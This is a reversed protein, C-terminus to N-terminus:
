CKRKKEWIRKQLDTGTSYTNAIEQYGAIKKTINEVSDSPMNMVKKFSVEFKKKDPKLEEKEKRKREREEKEQALGAEVKKAEKEAEEAKKTTKKIREDHEKFEIEWEREWEQWEKSRKKQEEWEKNWRAEWAEYTREEEEEWKSNPNTLMEYARSIKKFEEEAKERNHLNKDPHHELALRYYAKKIEKESAGPNLGLIQYNEHQNPM